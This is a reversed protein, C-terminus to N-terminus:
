ALAVRTQSPPILHRLGACVDRARPHLACLRVHRVQAGVLTVRGPIAWVERVLRVIGLASLRPADAALWARAWILVNHALQGLLGLMQQAALKRKRLVGLGLGHKDSKLDAEM